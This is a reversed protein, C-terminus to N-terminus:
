AVIYEFDTLIVSWNTWSYWLVFDLIFMYIAFNWHAFKWMATIQFHTKVQLCDVASIHVIIYSITLILWEKHVFSATLRCPTCRSNNYWFRPVTMPQIHTMLGIVSVCMGESVNLILTHLSILLVSYHNASTM